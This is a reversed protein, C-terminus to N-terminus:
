KILERVIEKKFCPIASTRSCNIIEVNIGLRRVDKNLSVISPIFLRSYTDHRIVLEHDEHWHTVGRALPDDRMDYGILYIKRAGLNIAFNLCQTGGNNGCVENIDPAYGYDDIKNLITSGAPGRIDQDIHTSAYKRPHFRHTTVHQKLGDSERGCWSNDCWFLASANPLIKYADNIAITNKDHLYDINTTKVSYGGAVIFVDQGYFKSHLEQIAERM